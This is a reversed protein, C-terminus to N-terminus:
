GRQTPTFEGFLRQRYLMLGHAAHYLAGCEIPLEATASLLGCLHLVAKQVWPERLQQDNAALTIFELTHGTAGLDEAL